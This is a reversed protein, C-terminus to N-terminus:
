SAPTLSKNMAEDLMTATKIAAIAYIEKARDVNPKNHGLEDKRLNLFDIMAVIMEGPVDSFLETKFIDGCVAHRIDADPMMERLVLALMERQAKSATKKSEGWSSAIDLLVARIRDAASMNGVAALTMNKDLKLMKDKEADARTYQLAPPVPKSAAPPPAQTTGAKKEALQKTKEVEANSGDADDRIDGTALNLLSILFYKRSSTIAKTVSKDGWDIAEGFWTASLTDIGDTIDFKQEVLSHRGKNGNSSIVETQVVSTVSPVIVIGAKASEKQFMGFIDDAQMFHYDVSGQHFHGNKPISGMGVVVAVLKSVLQDTM